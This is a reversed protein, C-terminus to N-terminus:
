DRLTLLSEQRIQLVSPALLRTQHGGDRFWPASQSTLASAELDLSWVEELYSMVADPDPATPQQWHVVALEEATSTLTVIQHDPNGDDAPRVGEDLTERCVFLRFARSPDNDPFPYKNLYLARAKRFAAGPARAMLTQYASVLVTTM